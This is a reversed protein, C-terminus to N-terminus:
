EYHKKKNNRRAKRKRFVIKKFEYWKLGMIPCYEFKILKSM